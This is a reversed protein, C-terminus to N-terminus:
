GRFVGSGAMQSAILKHLDFRMEADTSDREKEAEEALKVARVEAEEDLVKTALELWRNVGNAMDIHYQVPDVSATQFGYLKVGIAEDVLSAIARDGARLMSMLEASIRQTNEAIFSERQAERNMKDM